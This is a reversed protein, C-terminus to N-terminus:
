DDDAETDAAAVLTKVVHCNTDIPPTAVVSKDSMDDRAEVGMERDKEADDTKM